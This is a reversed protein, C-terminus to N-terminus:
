ETERCMVLRSSLVPEMGLIFRPTQPRSSGPVLRPDTEGACRIYGGPTSSKPKQDPKPGTQAPTPCTKPQKRCTKPLNQAPKPGSGFIDAGLPPHPRTTLQTAIM